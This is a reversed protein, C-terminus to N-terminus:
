RHDRYFTIQQEPESLYRILQWAAEKRPSRSFLVLSSGGALSVGPEGPGAGPAASDDLRGATGAPLRRSFEGINWPGTIYMAFYGEGFSQYINM